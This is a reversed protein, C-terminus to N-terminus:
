QGRAADPSLRCGLIRGLGLLGLFAIVFFIPSSLDHFLGSAAEISHYNAVLIISVVRLINALVAIPFAVVLIIVRKYIPGKLVYAYVAALALLAILTNIGSCPLGITFTTDGLHIEPGATTVPLGAVSLLWAASTVSISQLFFGTEQIFPPPIMFLLFCLPFAMARTARTGFFSLSLGSLVILLSLACLFRMGWVFGLIYVFAGLALVFAGTISPEKGKLESRKTWVFFGSVVPVLFGHSYYPNSLWAQFLWRFTPWYLLVLSATAVVTIIISRRKM